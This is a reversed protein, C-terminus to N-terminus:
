PAPNNSPLDRYSDPTFTSEYPARRQGARVPQGNVSLDVTNGGESVWVSIEEDAEFSRAEGEELTIPRLTRGDLVLGVTVEQHAVLGVEVRRSTIPVAPPKVITSSEPVASDRDFLGMAGAAALGVVAVLAALLWSPRPRETLIVAETPAVGPSREVPAPATKPRAYAREYAAMVKDHNLGLYKAYSRLFGRVYVDGGLADFSERELAELYETRVRTERSAEDISKNRHQRAARLARGIGTDTSSQMIAPSGTYGGRIREGPEQTGNLGDPGPSRGMRGM